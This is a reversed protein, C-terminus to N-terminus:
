GAELESPVKYEDRKVDKLRKILPVIRLAVTPTMHAETFKGLFFEVVSSPLELVKAGGGKFLAAVAEMPVGDDLTSKADLLGFSEIMDYLGIQEEHGKPTFAGQTYAHLLIGLSEKDTVHVRFTKM